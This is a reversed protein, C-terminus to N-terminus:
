GLVGVSKFWIQLKMLRCTEEPLGEFHQSWILNRVELTFWIALAWHRCRAALKKCIGPLENLEEGVVVLDKERVGGHL